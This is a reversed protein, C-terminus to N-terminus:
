LVVIDWKKQKNRHWYQFLVYHLLILTCRASLANQPAATLDRDLRYKVRALQM